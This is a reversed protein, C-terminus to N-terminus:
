CLHYPLVLGSLLELPQEELGELGELEELENLKHLEHPGFKQLATLQGLEAPLEQLAICYTLDM